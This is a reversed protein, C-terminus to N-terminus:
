VDKLEDLQDETYWKDPSNKIKLCYVKSNNIDIACKDIIGLEDLVTTVIQGTNFKFEM